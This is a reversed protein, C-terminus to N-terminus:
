NFLIIRIFFITQTVNNKANTDGQAAKACSFAM